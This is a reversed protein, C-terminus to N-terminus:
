HSVNLHENYQHNCKNSKKSDNQWWMPLFPDLLWKVICVSEKELHHVTFFKTYVNLINKYYYNYLKSFAPAYLLKM